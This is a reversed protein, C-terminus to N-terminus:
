RADALYYILPPVPDDKMCTTRRTMAQNECASRYRGSAVFSCQLMDRDFQSECKARNLENWIGAVESPDDASQSPQSNVWEIWRGLRDRPQDPSYKTTALNKSASIMKNSAAHCRLNNLLTTLLM